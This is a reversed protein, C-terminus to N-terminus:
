VKYMLFYVEQINSGLQELTDAQSFINPLEKLEGIYWGDEEWYELTFSKKM